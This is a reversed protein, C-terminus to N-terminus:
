LATWSTGTTSTCRYAAGSPGGFCISGQTGKLNGNPNTGDSVWIVIRGFRAMPAFHTNSLSGGTLQITAFVQERIRMQDNAMAVVDAYSTEPSVNEGYLELIERARSEEAEKAWKNLTGGSTRAKTQAM